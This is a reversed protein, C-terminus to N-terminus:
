RTREMEDEWWSPLKQDNKTYMDFLLDMQKQSLGREPPFTESKSLKVWFNELVKEDHGLTCALTIHEFWECPYFKGDPSLWGNNTTISDEYKSIDFEPPDLLVKAAQALMPNGGSLREITSAMRPIGSDYADDYEEEEPPLDKNRELRRDLYMDREHRTDWEKSQANWCEAWELGEVHRYPIDKLDVKGRNFEDLRRIPILTGVHPRETGSFVLTVRNSDYELQDKLYEERKQSATLVSEIAIPNGLATEIADDDVLNVGTSSDGIFKKKGDLVSMILETSLDVISSRLFSIAKEPTHEDAWLSRAHETIFDGYIIFCASM